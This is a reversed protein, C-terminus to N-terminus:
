KQVHDKESAPKLSLIYAVIDDTQKKTLIFDPMAVHPTLLFARLGMETTEPMAAIRAFSLSHIFSVSEQSPEVIHCDACIRRAAMLGDGPWAIVPDARVAGTPISLGAMTAAAIMACRM